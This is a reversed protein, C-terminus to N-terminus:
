LDALSVRAIFGGSLLGMINTSLEYQVGQGPQGFWGANPGSVANFPNLINYVHYNDPYRNRTMGACEYSTITQLRGPTELRRILIVRRCHERCIRLARPPSLPEM